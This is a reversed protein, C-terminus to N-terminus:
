KFRYKHNSVFNTDFGHRCLLLRFLPERLTFIINQYDACKRKLKKKETCYDSAGGLFFHRKSHWFAMISAQLASFRVKLLFNNSSRYKKHFVM